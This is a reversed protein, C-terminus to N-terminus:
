DAPVEQSPIRAYFEAPVDFVIHRGIKLSTMVVLRHHPECKKGARHEHLMEFVVPFVWVDGPIDDASISRNFKWGPDDRRVAAEMVLERTLYKVRVTSM